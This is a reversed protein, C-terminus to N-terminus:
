SIITGNHRGNVARIIEEPDTGDIIIVPIKKDAAYRVAKLDFLGYDGPKQKFRKKVINELQQYTLKDFKKADTYKGPDKDFVGPFDTANIILDADIAGAFLAARYDTSSGPMHGGGVLIKDGLHKKIEISRRHIRQDADQGLAAILLYGNIHTALIGIKDQIQLTASLENSLNIYQRALKGGGCVIILIHGMSKLRKFIEAYRIYSETDQSKTLLSGGLSISVKM